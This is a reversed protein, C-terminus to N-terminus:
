FPCSLHSIQLTAISHTSPTPSTGAIGSVRVNQRVQPLGLSQTLHESVFSASSANDLLSRAEIRSGNLATVLVCCTMLLTSSRLKIATHTPVQISAPSASSNDASTSTTDGIHLLTHHSKLCMKCRSLPKCNSVFHKSSFCNMCLNKQKVVLLKDDHSM